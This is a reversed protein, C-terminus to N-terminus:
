KETAIAFSLLTRRLIRAAIKTGLYDFSYRKMGGGGEVPRKPKSERRKSKRNGKKNGCSKKM